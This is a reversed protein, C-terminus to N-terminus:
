GACRRRQEGRVPRLAALVGALELLTLLNEAVIVSSLELWVPYLAALALAILAIRKGLLELAILGVMAVSLTGLLAQMIRALTVTVHGPGPGGTLLDVLSLLYSFAPPFYASPGHTGGAAHGGDHYTGHRSIAFATRLYTEGDNLPTYPYHAIVALRLVFALTILGGVALRTRNM